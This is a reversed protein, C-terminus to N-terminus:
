SMRPFSAAAPNSYTSQFDTQDAFAREPVLVEVRERADVIDFHHGKATAYGLRGLM